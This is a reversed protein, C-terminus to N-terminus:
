LFDSMGFALVLVCITRFHSASPRPTLEAASLLIHEKTLYHLADSAGQEKCRLNNTRL